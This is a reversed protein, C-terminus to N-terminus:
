QGMVMITIISLFGVFAVPLGLLIYLTEKRSQNKAILLALKTM